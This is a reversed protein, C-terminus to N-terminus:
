IMVFARFEKCQEMKSEREKLTNEVPDEIVAILTNRGYLHKFWARLISINLPTRRLM